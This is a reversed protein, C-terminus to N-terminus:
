AELPGAIAEVWRPRPAMTLATFALDVDECMSLIRNLAAGSPPDVGDERLLGRLEIRREAREKLQETMTM